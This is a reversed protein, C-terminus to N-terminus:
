DSDGSDVDGLPKAAARHIANIAKVDGPKHAGFLKAKLDEAQELGLIPQDLTNHYKGHKDKRVTM